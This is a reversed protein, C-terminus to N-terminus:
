SQQLVNTMDKLGNLSHDKNTFHLSQILIACDLKPTKEYNRFGKQPLIYDGKLKLSWRM